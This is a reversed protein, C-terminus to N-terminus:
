SNIFNKSLTIGPFTKKFAVGDTILNTAPNNCSNYLMCGGNNRYIFYDCSGDNDCKERCKDLTESNLIKLQVIETCRSHYKNIEYGQDLVVIKTPIDRFEFIFIMM